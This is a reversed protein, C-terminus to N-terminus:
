YLHNIYNKKNYQQEFKLKGEPRITVDGLITGLLVEKQIDTLILLNKAERATKSIGAYTTISKKM